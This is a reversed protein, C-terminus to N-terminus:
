HATGREAREAVLDRELVHLPDGRAEIQLRHGGGRAQREVQRQALRAIGELPHIELVMQPELAAVHAAHGLAHPELARMEVALELLQADPYRLAAVLRELFPVTDPM